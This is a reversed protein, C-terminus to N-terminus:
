PAVHARVAGHAWERDSPAPPRPRDALRRRRVKPLTGRGRGPPVQPFRAAGSGLAVGHLTWPSYRGRVHHVAGEDLFGSPFLLLLAQPRRPCRRLRQGLRHPCAAPKDWAATPLEFLQGRAGAGAARGCAPRRRTVPCRRLITRWISSQRRTLPGENIPLDRLNPIESRKGSDHLYPM